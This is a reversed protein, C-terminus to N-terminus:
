RRLVGPAFGYAEIEVLLEARCVDAELLLADRVAPSDAGLETALIRLVQQALGADRIYGTLELNGLEFAATCRRRAAAVVARLNALTEHTQAVIDGPNRSAHGVISATGSVFLAVRADGADALAARSFTPSRPGYDAPYRWAPVQRPNEVALPKDRAAIFSVCLPGDSTGLACAAPSGEGAALGAAVFAEHRGINFRRYRELGAREDNIDGLYNWMRVLHRCGTARLSAFVDGYARRTLATLADAALGSEDLALAGFLWHGDHRWHVAGSRGEVAKAGSLWADVRPLSPEIPRAHVRALPPASSEGDGRAFEAERGALGYAVGGLVGRTGAALEQWEDTSLRRAELRPIAALESATERM